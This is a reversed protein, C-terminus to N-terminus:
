VQLTQVTPVNRIIFLIFLRGDYIRVQHLLWTVIEALCIGPYSKAVFITHWIGVMHNPFFVKTALGYGPYLKVETALDCEPQLKAAIKTALDYGPYSKAPPM